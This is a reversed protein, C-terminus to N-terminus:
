YHHNSNPLNSEDYFSSHFSFYRLLETDVWNFLERLEEPQETGSLDCGLHTCIYWVNRAFNDPRVKIAAAVQPLKGYILSSGHHSDWSIYKLMKEELVPFRTLIANGYNGGFQTTKSFFRPQLQVMKGLEVSQHVNKREEVVPKEHCDLDCCESVEQLSVLDPKVNAVVAGSRGLDYKGDMGEGSQLNYTM